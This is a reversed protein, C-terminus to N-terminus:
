IGIKEMFQMSRSEELEIAPIVKTLSERVEELLEQPLPITFVPLFYKNTQVLLKAYPKNKKIAFGKISKWTHLDKNISLGETQIVYSMEQPPRITFLVLSAGAVLIFVAFLYNNFWLALGCVIITVIGISWFFDVSQEKHTYEPASWTITELTIEDM